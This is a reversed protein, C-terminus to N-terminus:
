NEIVEIEVTIREVEGALRDLTEVVSRLQGPTPAFNAYFKNKSNGEWNNELAGATRELQAVLDAVERAAKRFQAAYASAEPPVIRKKIIRRPRVM